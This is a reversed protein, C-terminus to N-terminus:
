QPQSPTNNPPSQPAVAREAQQSNIPTPPPNPPNHHQDGVESHETNAESGNRADAEQATTLSTIRDKYYLNMEAIETLDLTRIDPIFGVEDPLYVGQEHGEVPLGQVHRILMEKITMVEDPQTMSPSNNVEGQPDEEKFNVWTKFLTM